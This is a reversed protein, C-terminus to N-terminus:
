PPMAVVQVMPARFTRSIQRRPLRHKQRRTSNFSRIPAHLLPKHNQTANPMEPIRWIQEPSAPTFYQLCTSFGKNDKNFGKLSSTSVQLACDQRRGTTEWWGVTCITAAIFFALTSRNTTKGRPLGLRRTGVTKSPGTRSGPDFMFLLAKTFHWVFLAVHRLVCLEMNIHETRELSIVAGPIFPTRNVREWGLQTWKIARTKSDATPDNRAM